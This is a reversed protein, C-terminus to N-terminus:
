FPLVTGYRWGVPLKLTSKLKFDDAAAGQPYLLLQNWNIV